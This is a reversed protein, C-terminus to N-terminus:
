EDMRLQAKNFATKWHIAEDRNHFTDMVAEDRTDILYYLTTGEGHWTVVIFRM